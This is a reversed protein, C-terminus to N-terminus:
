HMSLFLLIWLMHVHLLIDFQDARWNKQIFLTNYLSTLKQLTSIYQLFYIIRDASQISYDHLIFIDDMKFVLSLGIYDIATLCWREQTSHCSAKETKCSMMCNQMSHAYLLWILSKVPLRIQPAHWIKREPSKM